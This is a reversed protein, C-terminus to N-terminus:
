KKRKANENGEQIERNVKLEDLELWIIFVGLLAVFPPVIGNVITLFDGWFGYQNTYMYSVSGILIVAGLLIKIIAHM